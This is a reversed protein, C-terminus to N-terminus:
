WNLYMTSSSVTMNKSAVSQNEAKYSWSYNSLSDLHKELVSADIHKMYMNYCYPEYHMGLLSYTYIYKIM